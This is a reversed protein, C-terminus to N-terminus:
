EEGQWIFPSRPAGSVIFFEPTVTDLMAKPVKLMAIRDARYIGTRVTPMIPEDEPARVTFNHPNHLAIKWWTIEAGLLFVDGDYPGGILEALHIYCMGTSPDYSM